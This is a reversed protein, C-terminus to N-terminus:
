RIANVRESTIKFANQYHSLIYETFVPGVFTVEHNEMQEGIEFFDM